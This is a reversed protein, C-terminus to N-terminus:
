SRFLKSSMQPRRSHLFADSWLGLYWCGPGKHLWFKAYRTLTGNVAFVSIRGTRGTLDVLGSFSNEYQSKIGHQDLLPIAGPHEDCNEMM